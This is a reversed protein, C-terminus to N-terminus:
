SVGAGPVLFQTILAHVLPEGYLTLREQLRCIITHEELWYLSHNKDSPRHSIRLKYCLSLTEIADRAEAVTPNKVGRLALGQALDLGWAVM